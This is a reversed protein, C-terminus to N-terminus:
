RDVWWGHASGRTDIANPSFEHLRENWCATTRRFWLIPAPVDEALIHQMEFYYERREEQDVTRLANDLLEDVRPNSYRNMNFGGGYSDSHWMTKQDPDVDWGFSVVIMKYEYTETLKALLANWEIPTPKAEVGIEAWYQQMAQIAQEREQNGANTHLEFSFLTGDVVGEVGHAERIGDGDEDKWGAEDLLEMAKEVDYGYRPENDPNHAWSIPPEVSHAVDALGFTISDAMAQRDLALLLGQRTRADLFLPTKEPDLNYIYFLFSFNPYAKCEFHEQQQADEWLAATVGAFDVEGTQLQAYQVTQNEVIKYYMFDLNPEDKFYDPNKVLAV